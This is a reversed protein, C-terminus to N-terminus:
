GRKEMILGLELLFCRHCEQGFYRKSIILRRQVHPTYGKTQLNLFHAQPERGPDAPKFFPPVHSDKPLALTKDTFEHLRTM